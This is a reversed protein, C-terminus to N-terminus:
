KEIKNLRALGTQKYVLALFNSTAVVVLDFSPHCEFDFCKV